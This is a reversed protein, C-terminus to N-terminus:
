FEGVGFVLSWDDGRGNLVDALEGGCGAQSVVGGDLTLTKARHEETTLGKYAGM